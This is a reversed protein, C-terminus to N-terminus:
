RGSLFQYYRIKYLEEPMLNEIKPEEEGSQKEPSNEKKNKDSETEIVSYGPLLPTRAKSQQRFYEGGFVRLALKDVM